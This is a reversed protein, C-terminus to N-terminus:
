VEVRGSTEEASENDAILRVGISQVVDGVGGCSVGDNACDPAAM